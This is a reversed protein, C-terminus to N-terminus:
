LVLMVTGVVSRGLSSLVLDNGDGGASTVWFTYNTGLYAQKFTAGGAFQGTMGVAGSKSILTWDFGAPPPSGALVLRLTGGLAVSGVANLRSASNTGSVTVEFTGGSAITLNTITSPAGSVALTGGSGITVSGGRFFSGNFLELRAYNTPGVANAFTYTQDPSTANTAANLRFGNNSGSYTINTLTGTRNAKVDVGTVGRFAITGDTLYIFSNNAPVPTIAPTAYTFQYVGGHNTICSNGVLGMPNQDVQLGGSGTELLGGDMVQVTNNWANSGQHGVRVMSSQVSGGNTIILANDVCNSYRGVYIQNWGPCSAGNDVVMVNGATVTQGIFINGSALNGASGLVSGNGSVSIFNSSSSSNGVYLTGGSTLYCLGGGAIIVTNSNAGSSGATLGNVNTVLANNEIRLVNGFGTTGTGVTLSQGNGNWLTGSGTMVASNNTTANGITSGAGGGVYWKAGNSLLLSNGTPLTNGTGVLVSANTVTGNDDIVIRNGISGIGTDGSKEQANGGNWLSGTGTVLILNNSTTYGAGVTAFTSLRGGNTVILSNDCAGLTLGINLTSSILSLSGQSVMLTNGRATAGQGVRMQVTKSADWVINTGTFLALNNAGGAGIVSNATTRMRANNGAVLLCNSDAGPVNGITLAGNTVAFLANDGLSLVNSKGSSNFGFFVNNSVFLSGGSNVLFQGNTGDMTIGLLNTVVGGYDIQVRGGTRILLNTAAFITNTVVLWAEGGVGVNKIEVTGVTFPLPTDVVAKYVSGAVRNTMYANQNAADQGPYQVANWNVSNTWTDITGNVTNTWTATTADASLGSLWLCGTLFTTTLRSRAQTRM